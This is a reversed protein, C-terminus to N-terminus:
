GTKPEDDPPDDIRTNSLPTRFLIFYIDRVKRGFLNTFFERSVIRAATLRNGGDVIVWRGRRGLRVVIPFFNNYGHRRISRILKRLRETDGRQENKFPLRDVAEIPVIIHAVDEVFEIASLDEPLEVWQAKPHVEDM